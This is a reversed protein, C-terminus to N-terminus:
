KKCTGLFTVAQDNSDYANPAKMLLNNVVMIDTHHIIMTYNDMIM